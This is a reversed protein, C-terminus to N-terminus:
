SANSSHQRRYLVPNYVSFESKADLTDVPLGLHVYPDHVTNFVLKEGERKM